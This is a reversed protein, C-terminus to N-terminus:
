REAESKAPRREMRDWTRSTVAQRRLEHKEIKGTPTKPLEDVLEVFRPVMFAPLCEQCYAALAAPDLSAGPRRVVAVDLEEEELESPVGFAASELVAPHTNIVREVEFASINEGRVRISEKIREVFYFYGDRDRHARDGTHFWLNRMSEATAAPFNYYGTTMVFAQRPRVVLEGPEDPAVERDQEDVVCVEFRGHNTEGCSGARWHGYPSATGIGIETSTYTEVARAGFRAFFAEDLASKGMYFSRLPHNKDDRTPPQNLLIPIMSFVGMALSADFERVDDWFRSASFREVIGISSGALLAAMVGDWFAAAHFLPLPCYISEESRHAMFVLSDRACTLAHGHPVMVGKSPGTTGSTYMIAQLDSHRVAVQPAEVGHELLRNLPIVPTALGKPVASSGDHKRLVVSVLKSLNREVEAIRDLFPEDVVLMSVDSTELVHQLLDGKYAINVPVAVAGLKALAFTVHLFDPCNPLMVAVHDRAAIGAASLGRAVRNATENVEGFTLEGERFKLFVSERHTTAREQLIDGLVLEELDYHPM